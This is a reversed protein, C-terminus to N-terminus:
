GNCGGGDYAFGCVVAKQKSIGYAQAVALVTAFISVAMFLATVTNFTDKTM